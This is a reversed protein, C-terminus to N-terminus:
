AAEQPKARDNWVYQRTGSAASLQEIVKERYGDEAKSLTVTATFMAKRLRRVEAVVLRFILRQDTCDLQDIEDNSTGM